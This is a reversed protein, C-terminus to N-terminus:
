RSAVHVSPVTALAYVSEPLHSPVNVHPSLVELLKTRQSHAAKPADKEKPPPLIRSKHNVTKHLGGFSTLLAVYANMIPLSQIAQEDTDEQRRM